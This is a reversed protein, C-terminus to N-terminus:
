IIVLDSLQKLIKESLKTGNDIEVKAVRWSLPENDIVCVVDERLNLPLNSYVKYFKVKKTM